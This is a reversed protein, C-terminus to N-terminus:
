MVEKVKYWRSSCGNLARNDESTNLAKVLTKITKIKDNTPVKRNGAEHQWSRGVELTYSFKGILETLTGTYDTAVVGGARSDRYQTITFHKM